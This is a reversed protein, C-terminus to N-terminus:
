ELTLWIAREPRATLWVRRMVVAEFVKDDTAAMSM